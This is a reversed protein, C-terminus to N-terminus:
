ATTPWLKEFLIKHSSMISKSNTIIATPDKPTGSFIIIEKEDKIMYSSHIGSQPIVQIKMKKLDKFFDLIREPAAALVKVTATSENLEDFIGGHYFRVLYQEPCLLLIQNTAQQIMERMKSQIESIGSLIQLKEMDETSQEGSFKPISDWITILETSKNILTRLREKEASLLNYLANNFPEASFKIPHKFEANVLGKNQLNTLLHYTETRPMKLAKCVEPATKSGFKDLFMYVKAQNSTLGYMSLELKLQELIENKKIPSDSKDDLISIQGSTSLVSGKEPTKITDLDSLDLSFFYKPKKEKPSSDSTYSSLDVSKMLGEIIKMGFKSISYYSKKRDSIDTGIENWNKIMGVKQLEKLHYNLTGKETDSLGLQEKIATYSLRNNNNSLIELIKWQKEDKLITFLDKIEEPFVFASLKGM